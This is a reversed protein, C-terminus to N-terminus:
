RCVTVISFDVVRGLYENLELIRPRLEEAPGLNGTYAETTHVYDAAVIRDLEKRVSELSEKPITVGSM